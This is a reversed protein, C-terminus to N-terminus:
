FKRLKHMRPHFNLNEELEQMWLRIKTLPHDPFRTDYEFREAESMLSGQTYNVDYPDQLWAAKIKAETTNPIMQGDFYEAAVMMERLRLDETEEAIIKLGFSYFKFPIIYAALYRMMQAQPVKFITKIARLGKLNLTDAYILGGNADVAKARFYGQLVKKDELITEPLGTKGPWYNVKFLARYDPCQWRREFPDFTDQLWDKPEYQIDIIQPKKRFFM